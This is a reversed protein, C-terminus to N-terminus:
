DTESHSLKSINWVIIVPIKKEYLLWQSKKKQEEAQKTKKKKNGKTKNQM